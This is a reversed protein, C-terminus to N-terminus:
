SQSLQKFSFGEQPIHHQSLLRRIDILPDNFIDIPREKLKNIKYIFFKNM